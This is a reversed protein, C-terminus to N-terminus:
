RCVASTIGEIIYWYFHTNGAIGDITITNSKFLDSRAYTWMAIGYVVMQENYDDYDWDFLTIGTLSGNASDGGMIVSFGNIKVTAKNMYQCGVRFYIDQKAPKLSANGICRRSAYAVFINDGFTEWQQACKHFYRYLNVGGWGDNGQKSDTGNNASSSIIENEPMLYATGGTGGEAAPGGATGSTPATNNSTDKGGTGDKRRGNGGDGARLIGYNNLTTLDETQEGAKADYRHALNVNASNFIKLNKLTSNHRFTYFSTM